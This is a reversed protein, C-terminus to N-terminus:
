VGVEVIGNVVRVPYTAAKCPRGGQRMDGSALDFTWGHGTCTAAGDRVKGKHLAVGAHPCADKLAYWKGDHRYVGIRRAGIQVLTGHEGSFNAMPGVPTWQIEPTYTM